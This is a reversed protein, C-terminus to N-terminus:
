ASIWRLSLDRTEETTIGQRFVQPLDKPLQNYKKLHRLVALDLMAAVEQEDYTGVVEKNGKKKLRIEKYRNEATALMVGFSGLHQLDSEKGKLYYRAKTIDNM